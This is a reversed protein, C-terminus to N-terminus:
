PHHFSLKLLSRLSSKLLLFFLPQSNLLSGFAPLSLTLNHARLLPIKGSLPLSLLRFLSTFSDSRKSTSPQMDFIYDDSSANIWYPESNLDVHTRLLFLIWILSPWACICSRPNFVSLPRHSALTLHVYIEARFRAALPSYLMPSPTICTSARLIFHHVVV